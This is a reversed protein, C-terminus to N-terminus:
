DLPLRLGLRFAAFVLATLVAAVTLSARWGEGALRLLAALFVPTRVAFPALNWSVLYVALLAVAGAAMRIGIWEQPEARRKRAGAIEIVALVMMAAGIAKPFFGPGPVRGVGEPLAFSSALLFVGFALFVFGPIM